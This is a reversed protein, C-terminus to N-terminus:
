NVGPIIFSSSDMGVVIRGVDDSGRLREITAECDGPSLTNCGYSRNSYIVSGTTVTEGNQEFQRTVTTYSIGSVTVTGRTENTVTACAALLAIAPLLCTAPTRFTMM